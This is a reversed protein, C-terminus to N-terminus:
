CGTVENEERKRLEDLTYEVEPTFTKCPHANPDAVVCNRGCLQYTLKEFAVNLWVRGGPTAVYGDIELEIDGQLDDFSPVESDADDLFAGHTHYSALVDWGSPLEGTDCADETGARPETVALRGEADFGVYGCLEINEAISRAQIRDFHDLMFKDVDDEVLARSQASAFLPM